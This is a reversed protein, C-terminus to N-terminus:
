AQRRRAVFAMCALGLGMLAYTSPEPIAPAVTVGALRFSGGDAKITFKNGSLNSFSFVNLVGSSTNSTKGLDFVKGGGTLTADDGGIGLFPNEWYSFQLSTLNVTQNFTLVISEGTTIESAEFLTGSVVGLGDWRDAVQAAAGNSKLATVTLGLSGSTFNPATSVGDFLGSGGDLYFDFTPTTAHALVPLVSVLAAALHHKILSV